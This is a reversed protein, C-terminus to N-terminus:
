INFQKSATNGRLLFDIEEIIKEIKTKKTTKLMKIIDSRFNLLKSLDHLVAKQNNCICYDGNSIHISYSKITESDFVIDFNNFQFVSRFSYDERLEFSSSNIIITNFGFKELFLRTNSITKQCATYNRYFSFFSTLDINNILTSNVLRFNSDISLNWSSRSFDYILSFKIHKSSIRISSEGYSIQQVLYDHDNEASRIGVAGLFNSIKRMDKTIKPKQKDYIEIYSQAMMDCLHDNM